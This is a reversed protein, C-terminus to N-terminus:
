GGENCRQPSEALDPRRALTRRRAEAIRWARVNAHHGSLLVAPVTLGRYEAPRTYHPYELLGDEFSDEAVSEADIVGPVLRAVTDIVVMAPLEGGTMVFDGISLERCGLIDVVRQDIGEYHGCVIAIRSASALERAMKQDFREGGASMLLITTESITDALISEVGEVVPPAKMVM